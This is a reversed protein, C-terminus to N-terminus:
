YTHHWMVTLTKFIMAKQSTAKNQLDISLSTVSGYILRFCQLFSEQEM